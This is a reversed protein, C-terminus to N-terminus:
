EGCAEGLDAEPFKVENVKGSSPEFNRDSV